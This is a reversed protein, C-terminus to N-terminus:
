SPRLVYAITRYSADELVPGPRSSSNHMAMVSNGSEVAIGIHKHNGGPPRSWVVVDGEQFPPPTVTQWGIARLQDRVGVVALSGSINVGANKLAESVVQACGLVGGRTCCCYPFSGRREYRRTLDMSSEVIRRQPSGSTFQPSSTVPGGGIAAPGGKAPAGKTSHVYRSHVYRRQGNHNIIYWDGESGIINVESGNRFGGVIPGWPSTRINLSTRVRVYGTSGAPLTATSSKSKSTDVKSQTSGTKKSGVDEPTYDKLGGMFDLAILSSSLFCFGFCLLVLRFRM